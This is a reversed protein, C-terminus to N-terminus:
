RTLLAGGRARERGEKKEEDSEKEGEFRGFTSKWFVAPSSGGTANPDRRTLAVSVSKNPAATAYYCMSVAYPGGAQVNSKAESVKTEQVAEIEEKTILDCVDGSGQAARPVPGAKKECGGFISLAIILFGSFVQTRM